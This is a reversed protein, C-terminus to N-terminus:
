RGPVHKSVLSNTKHHLSFIISYLVSQFPFFFFFFFFFLLFSQKHSTKRASILEGQTSICCCLGEGVGEGGGM